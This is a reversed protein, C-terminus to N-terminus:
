FSASFGVRFGDRTPMLGVRRPVPVSDWHEELVRSGYVAGAIAGLGAGVAASLFDSYQDDSASELAVATLWGAAAGGGAGILAWKTMPGRNHGKMGASVELRDITSTKFSWIKAATGDEIVVVTDGRLTQYTGVIPAVVQASKVRIRTGPAISQAALACPAVLVLVATVARLSRSAKLMM